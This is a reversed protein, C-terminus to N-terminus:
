LRLRVIASQEAVNKLTEPINLISLIRSTGNMGVISVYL